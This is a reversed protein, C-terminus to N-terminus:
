HSGPEQAGPAKAERDRGHKAPQPTRGTPASTGANLKEVISAFQRLSGM